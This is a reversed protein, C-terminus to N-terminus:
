APSQELSASHKWDEKFAPNSGSACLPFNKMQYKKEASINNIFSFNFPKGHFNNQKFHLLIIQFLSDCSEQSYTKGERWQAWRKIHVFRAECEEFPNYLASIIDAFLFSGTQQLFPQFNHCIYFHSRIHFFLAFFM